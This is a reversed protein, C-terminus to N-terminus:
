VESSFIKKRKRWYEFTMGAKAITAKNKIQRGGYTVVFTSMLDTKEDM